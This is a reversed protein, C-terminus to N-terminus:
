GITWGFAGLVFLVVLPISIAVGVMLLVPRVLKTRVGPWSISAEVAAGTTFCVNALVGGVVLKAIATPANPIVPEDRLGLVFVAAVISLIANYPLRM